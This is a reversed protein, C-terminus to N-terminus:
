EFIKVEMGAYAGPVAKSVLKQGNELGQVIVTKENFFIPSVEV